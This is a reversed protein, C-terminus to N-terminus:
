RLSPGPTTKEGGATTGYLAGDMALLNASPFTGDPAGKFRYLVHEGGSPSIRFVTGCGGPYKGCKAGGGYAATGYLVGGIATLGAEPDQGDRHVPGKFRYLVSESSAAKLPALSTKSTPLVGNGTGGCAAFLACFCVAAVQRLNSM